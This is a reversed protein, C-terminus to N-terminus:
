QSQASEEMRKRRFFDLRERVGANPDEGCSAVIEDLKPGIDPDHRLAILGDAACKRVMAARDQLGAVILAYPDATVTVDRKLFVQEYRYRGMSRDIWVQRRERAPWIARQSLLVDLAIARIHPLRAERFMRELHPDVGPNCCIERFQLGLQARRTTVIEEVLVEVVDQRMLMADLAQRGEQSWRGWSAVYPLLARLAPIIVIAPTMPMSRQVADQAADRVQAAWDNLRWFLAYANAPAILPGDLNRLAAERIRGDGHFMFVRSLGPLQEVALMEKRRLVDQDRVGSWRHCLLFESRVFREANRLDDPERMSQLLRTGRDRIRMFGDMDTASLALGGDGGVSGKKIINWVM